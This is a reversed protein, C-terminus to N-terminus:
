ANRDDQKVASLFGWFIAKYQAFNFSKPPEELIVGVIKELIPANRLLIKNCKDKKKKEDLLIAEIDISNSVAKVYAKNMEEVNKQTEGQSWDINPPSFALQKMKLPADCFFLEFADTNEDGLSDVLSAFEAITLADFKYKVKM